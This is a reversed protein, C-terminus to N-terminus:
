DQYIKELLRILTRREAASLNRTLRPEMETAFSHLIKDLFRAGSRTIFLGRHRGDTASPRREIYGRQELETVLRAVLSREIDNADAITAPSIGPNQRALTLITAQQSRVSYRKGYVSFVRSFYSYARRIHYGIHDPIGGFDIRLNKM